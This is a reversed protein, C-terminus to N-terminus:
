EDATLDRRRYRRKVRVPEPEAAQLHTVEIDTSRVPRAKRRYFLAAAQIPRVDVMEGAQVDRGDFTFDHIAIVQM